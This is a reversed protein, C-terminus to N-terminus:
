KIETIQIAGSNAHHMFCIIQNSDELCSDESNFKVEIEAGEPYSHVMLSNCVFFDKGNMRLYTGTFDRDITAKHFEKSCSILSSVLLISVCGIILNRKINM